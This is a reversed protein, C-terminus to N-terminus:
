SLLELCGSTQPPLSFFLVKYIINQRQCLRHVLAHVIWFLLYFPFCEHNGRYVVSSKIGTMKSQQLTRERAANQVSEGCWLGPNGRSNSFHCDPHRPCALAGVLLRTQNGTRLPELEGSSGLSSRRIGEMPHGPKWNEGGCLLRTVIRFSDSLNEM